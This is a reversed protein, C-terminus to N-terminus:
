RMSVEPSKNSDLAVQLRKRFVNFIADLGGRLTKLKVEGVRARYAIPVEACKLGRRYVEIKLEWSFPWGAARVNLKPWIERKFVWMGSQTDKFPCGFLLKIMQTLLWNGWQHSTSMVSKDLNTLRDTNLFEVEEQELKKILLPLMAFPYTLDADGTAIIEGSANAFGAKYANGYGRVPQLIVTAGQERAIHPTRDTSGNDVVLIETEYGMQELTAIPIERLVPGIGTEENLAPIVISIKTM